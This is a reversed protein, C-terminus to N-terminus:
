LSFIKQGAIVFINKNSMYSIEHGGTFVGFSPLIMQYEDLLFCPLRLSQRAKAEVRCVPHLHGAFVFEDLDWKTKPHHTFVFSEERFDDTYVLINNERFLRQPLIDHNGIIIVMEISEYQKRWQAFLEWEDNYRNHFLDGLFLIRAPFWTHILEDLRNFNNIIASAPIAIGQKRFHTIKGLHLDAILLTSTEEWYMAKQHLLVFHNNRIRIEM